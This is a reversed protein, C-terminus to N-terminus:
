LPHHDLGSLRKVKPTIVGHFRLFKVMKPSSEITICGGLYAMAMGDGLEAVVFWIGDVILDIGMRRGM